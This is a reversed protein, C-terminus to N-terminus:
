ILATALGRGILHLVPLLIYIRHTRHFSRQWRNIAILSRPSPRTAARPRKVLNLILRGVYRKGIHAAKRTSSANRSAVCGSGISGKCQICVGFRHLSQRSTFKIRRFPCTAIHHQSSDGAFCYLICICHSHAIKPRVDPQNYKINITRFPM